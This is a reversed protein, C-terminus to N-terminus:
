FCFKDILHFLNFIKLTKILQVLVKFLFHNLNVFYMEFILDFDFLLHFHSNLPVSSFNNHFTILCNSIL